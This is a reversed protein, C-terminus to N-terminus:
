VFVVKQLIFLPHRSDAQLIATGHTEAAGGGMGLPPATLM